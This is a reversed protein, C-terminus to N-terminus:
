VDDGQILMVRIIKMMVETALWWFMRGMNQRSESQLRARYVGSDLSWARDKRTLKYRRLDMGGDGEILM